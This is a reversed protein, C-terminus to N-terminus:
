FIEGDILAKKERGDKLLARLTDADDKKIAEGLVRLVVKLEERAEDATLEADPKQRKQRERDLNIIPTLKVNSEEKEPKPIGM